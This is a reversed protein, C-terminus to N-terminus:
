LGGQLQFSLNIYEISYNPQIYTNFRLQKRDIDYPTNNTEDCVISYDLLVNKSKLKELYSDLSEEVNNRTLADNYDYEFSQVLTEIEESVKSVLRRINVRDMVNPQPIVDFSFNTLDIENVMNEPLENTLHWVVANKGNHHIITCISNETKTGFEIM